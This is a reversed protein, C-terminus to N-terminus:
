PATTWIQGRERVPGLLSEDLPLPDYDARNPARYSLLSYVTEDTYYGRYAQTVLEQFFAPNTEEVSKLADDQATESLTAFLGGREQAALEIQVLGEMFLRRKAASGAAVSEVFAAIGLDGAGPMEDQAPVIRNLTADLLARQADDLITNSTTM